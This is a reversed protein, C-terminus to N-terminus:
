CSLSALKLVLKAELDAGEAKLAGRPQWATGRSM